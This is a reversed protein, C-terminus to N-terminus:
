SININLFSVMGHQRCTASRENSEPLATRYRSRTPGRQIM